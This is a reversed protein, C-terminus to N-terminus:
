CKIEGEPANPDYYYCCPSWPRESGAAMEPHAPAMAQCCGDKNAGGSGEGPFDQGVAQARLVIQHASNVDVSTVVGAQHRYSYFRNTLHGDVYIEYGAIARCDAVEWQVFLSSCGLRTVNTITVPFSDSPNRSADNAKIDQFFYFLETPLSGRSENPSFGVQPKAQKTGLVCDMAHLDIIMSDIFYKQFPVSFLLCNAEFLNWLDTTRVMECLPDCMASRMTKSVTKCENDCILARCHCCLCGEQCKEPCKEQCEERCEEPCEEICEEYPGDEEPGECEYCEDCTSPCLGCDKLAKRILKECLERVDDPLPGPPLLGRPEGASSEETPEKQVSPDIPLNYPYPPKDKNPDTWPSVAAMGAFPCVCEPKEEKEPAAAKASPVTITSGECLEKLIEDPTKDVVKATSEIDHLEKKVFTKLQDCLENNSGCEGETLPSKKKDQRTEGDRCCTCTPPNNDLGDGSCGDGLDYFQLSSNNKMTSSCDCTGDPSFDPNMEFGYIDIEPVKPEPPPLFCKRLYEELEHFCEVRQLEKKSLHRDTVKSGGREHQAACCEEFPLPDSCPEEETPAVASESESRLLLTLERFLTQIKSTRDEGCICGRPASLEEVLLLIRQKRTACVRCSGCSDEPSKMASNQTHCSCEEKDNESEEEQNCMCMCGGNLSRHSHLSTLIHESMYPRCTTTSPTTSKTSPSHCDCFEGDPDSLSVRKTERSICSTTGQVNSVYQTCESEIYQSFSCPHQIKTSACTCKCTATSYGQNSVSCPGARRARAMLEEGSPCLCTVKGVISRSRTTASTEYDMGFSPQNCPHRSTVIRSSPESFSSTETQKQSSSDTQKQSSTETQKQSSSDTPKQSSTETQKQASQLNSVWTMCSQTNQDDTTQISEGQINTPSQCGCPRGSESQHSQSSRDSPSKLPNPKKTKPYSNRGPALNSQGAWYPPKSILEKTCSCIASKISAMATSPESETISTRTSEHCPKATPQPKSHCPQATQQQCWCRCVHNKVPPPDASKSRKSSCSCSTGSELDSNSKDKSHDKLWSNVTQSPKTHPDDSETSRSKPKNLPKWHAQLYSPETTQQHRSNLDSSSHREDQMYM